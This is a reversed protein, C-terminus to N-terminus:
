RSINPNFTILGEQIRTSKNTASIIKTDYVYRGAPVTNSTEANMTMTLLGNAAGSCDFSYSTNSYYSKKVKANFTYTTLDVLDGNAHSVVIEIALNSGQDVFLNVENAM